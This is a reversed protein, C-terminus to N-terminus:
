DSDLSYTDNYDSALAFISAGYWRLVMMLDAESLEYDQEQLQLRVDDERCNQCKPTRGRYTPAVLTDGNCKVCKMMVFGKRRLAEEKKRQQDLIVRQAQETEVATQLHDLGFYSALEYVQSANDEQLLDGMYADGLALWIQIVDFADVLSAEVEIENSGKLGETTGLVLKSLVSNAGRGNPGEMWNKVLFKEQGNLMIRIANEENLLALDELCTVTITTTATITDAM